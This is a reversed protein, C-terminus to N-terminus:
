LLKECVVQGKYKLSITKYNGLTKDKLGKQYFAKYNSFREDLARVEGLMITYTQKRASLVYAGSKEKKIGIIHKSLFSDNRIFSALDYIQTSDKKTIGSVLPVHASFNQSLPMTEGSTDMYVSPNGNIRAIPKRQEITVGIQGSMTVYVDAKKVIPHANVRKEMENLAINEKAKNTSNEGSVILLKNVTERTVFPASEDVFSVAVDQVERRANRGTAFVTLFVIFGLVALMKIYFWNGKM